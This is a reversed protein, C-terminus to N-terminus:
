PNILASILCSCPPPLTLILFRYIGSSRLRSQASEAVGSNGIKLTKLGPDTRSARAKPFCPSSPCLIFTKLGFKLPASRGARFKGHEMWSPSSSRRSFGGWAEPVVKLTQSLSLWCWFLPSCTFASCRFILIRLLLQLSTVGSGGKQTIKLINKPIRQSGPRSIAPTRSAASQRQASGPEPAWSLISKRAPINEM